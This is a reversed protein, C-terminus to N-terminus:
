HGDSGEKQAVGDLLLDMANDLAHEHVVYAEQSQVIDMNDGILNLAEGMVRKLDEVKGKLDHNEKTLKMCEQEIQYRAEKHRECQLSKTSLEAEAKEARALQEQYLREFTEYQHTRSVLEKKTAELNSQLKNYDDEAVFRGDIENEELTMGYPAWDYFSVEDSM